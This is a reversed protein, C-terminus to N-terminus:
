RGAAPAITGKLRLEVLHDIEALADYKSMTHLKILCHYEKEAEAAVAQTPKNLIPLLGPQSPVSQLEQRIKGTDAFDAIVVDFKATTFAPSLPSGNKVVVPRHGARTLLAEFEKLGAPTASAPAYILISSPHVAAYGRYRASRGIRLFKDGCAGLDASASAFAAAVVGVVILRRLVCM